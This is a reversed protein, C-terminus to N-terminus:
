LFRTCYYYWACTDRERVLCAVHHTQGVSVPWVSACLFRLNGWRSQAVTSLELLVDLGQHKARRALADKAQESRLMLLLVGLSNVALEDLEEGTTLELADRSEDCTQVEGKEVRSPERPQSTDGSSADSGSTTAEATEAKEREKRHEPTEVVRAIRELIRWLAVQLGYETLRRRIDTAHDDHRFAFLFLTLM